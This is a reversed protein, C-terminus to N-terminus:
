YAQLRPLRKPERAKKLCYLNEYPKGQFPFGQIAQVSNGWFTVNKHIGKCKM